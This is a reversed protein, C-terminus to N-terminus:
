PRMEEETSPFLLEQGMPKHLPDLFFHITDTGSRPPRPADQPLGQSGEHMYWEPKQTQARQRQKHCSEQFQVAICKGKQGTYASFALSPPPPTVERLHSTLAGRALAQSLTPLALPELPSQPKLPWILSLSSPVPTLPRGDNM